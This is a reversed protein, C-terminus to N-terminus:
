IFGTWRPADSCIGLKPQLKTLSCGSGSGRFDSSSCWGHFRAVPPLVCDLFVNFYDCSSFLVLICVLNYISTYGTSLSNGGSGRSVAPTPYPVTLVFDLKETNWSHYWDATYQEQEVILEREQLMSKPHSAPILSALVENHGRPRSFLRLLVAVLRKIFLPTSLVYKLERGMGTMSEGLSLHEAIAM